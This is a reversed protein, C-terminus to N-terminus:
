GSFKAYKCLKIKEGNKGTITKIEEICKPIRFASLFDEIQENVAKPDDEMVFHGTGKVVSLKFKGQMHAITLPTDLESTDTLLLMKPVKVSLFCNSMNTYWEKWYAESSVLDTKWKFVKNEEKLLPPISVRVSHLNHIQTSHMYSIADNISPFNNKRNQVINMMFPLADMASGEVVDLVILGQIKEYLEPYKEESLVHCVTKIAIAGGFSHGLIVITDNPFLENIKLLVKETDAIMTDLSLDTAPTGKNYGHGRFDYSVM